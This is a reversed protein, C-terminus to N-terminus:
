SVGLLVITPLIVQCCFPLISPDHEVDWHLLRKTLIPILIKEQTEILIRKKTANTADVSWM